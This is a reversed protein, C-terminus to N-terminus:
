VKVMSAGISPMCKVPINMQFPRSLVWASSATPSRPQHRPHTLQRDEWFVGGVSLNSCCTSFTCFSRAIAMTSRSAVRSHISRVVNCATRCALTRVMKREKKSARHPRTISVGAQSDQPNKDVNSDKKGFGVVGLWSLIM